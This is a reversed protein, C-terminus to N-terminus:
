ARPRRKAHYEELDERMMKLNVDTFSDHDRSLSRGERKISWAVNKKL